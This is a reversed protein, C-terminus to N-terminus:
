QLSLHRSTGARQLDEASSHFSDGAPPANRERAPKFRAAFQVSTREVYIYLLQAAAISVLGALIFWLVAFAHNTGTLRYGIRMVYVAVLLHILYLSYSIRGFYQLPEFNLWTTLTGMRSATYLLLTTTWGILMPIPDQFISAVFFLALFAFFAPRFRPHNAAWYCLAGAAFYFWWQFFWHDHTHPRVLLTALGLVAVLVASYTLSKVRTQSMFKGAVLLAILVVYFQVELCLTWAVGMIPFANVMNQIYFINLCIDYWTPLPRREIWPIHRETFMAAITLALVFWYPPDLRLQRRLMFNGLGGATLPV